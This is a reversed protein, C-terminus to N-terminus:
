PVAPAIVDTPGTCSHWFATAATESRTPSRFGSQCSRRTPRRAPAQRRWCAACNKPQEQPRVPRQRGDHSVARGVACGKIHLKADLPYPGARGQRRDRRSAVPTRARRPADGIQALPHAIPQLEVLDLLRLEEAGDLGDDGALPLQDLLRLVFGDARMDSPNASFIARSCRCSVSFSTVTLLM